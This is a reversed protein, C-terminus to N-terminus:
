TWNKEGFCGIQPYLNDKFLVDLWKNDHCTQLPCFLYCWVIVFKTVLLFKEVLCHVLPFSFSAEMWNILNSESLLTRNFAKQECNLVATIIERHYCNLDRCLHTTLNM